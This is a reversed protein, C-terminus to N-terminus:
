RSSSRGFFALLREAVADAPPHYRGAAVDDRVRAVRDPRSPDDAALMMMGDSGLLGTPRTAHAGENADGHV